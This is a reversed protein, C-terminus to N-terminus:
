DLSSANHVLIETIKIRSAANCSIMWKNNVEVVEFGEDKYMNKITTNNANSLIFFIKNNTLNVCTKCLRKHDEYNFGNQSYDKFKNNEPQYYPPDFYCFDGEEAKELIYTFDTHLIEINQLIRSAERIRKKNVITPNKYKGIPVNFINKSNVRYLGNYATKNLYLLLASSKVDSNNSKNFEERLEYYKKKNTSYKQYKSSEEILEEPKYKVVKYFNMLRENIDNITGKIPELNFFLAGGGFFSEHYTRTHIDSPLHHKIEEILSSKGGAWKLIPKM